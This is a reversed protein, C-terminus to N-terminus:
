RCLELPQGIETARYREIPVPYWTGDQARVWYARVVETRRGEEIQGTETTRIGSPVRELRSREEKEAVVITLPRCAPMSCSAAVMLLLAYALWGGARWKEVLRIDRLPCGRAARPRGARSGEARHVGLPRNQPLRLGAAGEPRDPVLTATWPAHFRFLGRGSLPLGMTLHPRLAM